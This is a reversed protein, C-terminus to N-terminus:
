AGGLDTKQLRLANAIVSVSSFSMAASAIVPSLLLGFAPYLVGAALPIGLVNYAFAFFLNQRINRMTARSLRLARLIGRPDGRVLTLGATAMAVDTGSGMAIGVDAQALAPADNIGDGAMAVRRGQSRYKLVLEGKALPSTEAEVKTIGLKRAVAEATEWHDGTVMVVEVGSLRLSQVVELASSRIPDSVTLFGATRNRMGVFLVTEGERRHKQIEPLAPADRLGAQALLRDSGLMTAETGVLGRLGLGSEYHVSRAPTPPLSRRHAEAVVAASLPHESSFALGAATALVQEETFGAFAHVSTVAPKGETLTGTKDALLLDVKELAELAEANRVLVGNRAGRASAVAISMPTALGLACPCAIILVAVANVLGFVWGPSPGWFSWAAFTALSAAIVAPVFYSSIRDALRQIPPRSRQAKEVVSVIQALLTASGVREARIILANMGNITGAIVTDGPRKSVPLSEGTLMSEDLASVGEEVVGDVPVKSGPRVLLRDGVSIGSIQVERETGDKEFRLATAPALCLLETLALRTRHRARVELVQGLLVLTTISASAEFYLGLNGQFPLFLAVVSYAYASGVGLGILSFMNLRGSRFSLFAKHILPWGCVFVVPTALFFQVLDTRHSHPLFHAMAILWLPLSLAASIWFRFALDKLEPPPEASASAQLPSLAMGCSPCSGPGHAIIEPHMSCGYEAAVAPPAAPRLFSEPDAAFRRACSLSCFYYTTGKFEHKGAAKVPDVNMGCVPDTM